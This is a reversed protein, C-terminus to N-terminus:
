PFSDRHDFSPGNIGLSCVKKIRSFGRHVLHVLYALYALYALYGFLVKGRSPPPNGLFGFSLKKAIKDMKDIKDM